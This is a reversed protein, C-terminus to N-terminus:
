DAHLKEQLGKGLANVILPASAGINLALIESDVKYAMALSGAVLAFLVRTLWFEPYSLFKPRKQRPLTVLHLVAVLEIAVNGLCGWVFRDFPEM